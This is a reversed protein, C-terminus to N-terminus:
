RDSYKLVRVAMAAIQTSPYEATIVSAILLCADGASAPPPSLLHQLRSDKLEGQSAQAMETQLFTVAVILDNDELQCQFTPEDPSASTFTSTAITTASGDRVLLAHCGGIGACRILGARGDISFGIASLSEHSDQSPTRLGILATRLDLQSLM